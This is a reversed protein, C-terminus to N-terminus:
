QVSLQVPQLIFDYAAGIFTRSGKLCKRKYKKYTHQYKIVM